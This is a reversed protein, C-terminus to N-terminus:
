VEGAQRATFQQYAQIGKVTYNTRIQPL